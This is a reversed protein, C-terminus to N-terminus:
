KKEKGLCTEMVLQVGRKFGCSYYFENEMSTRDAVLKSYELYLDAMDFPMKFKMKNEVEICKDCLKKYDRSNNKLEIDGSMGYLFKNIIEDM